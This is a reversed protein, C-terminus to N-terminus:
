LSLHVIGWVLWFCWILHRPMKEHLLLLFLPLGLKFGHALGHLFKTSLLNGFAALLVTFSAFILM